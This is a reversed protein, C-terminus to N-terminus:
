IDKNKEGYEKILKVQAPNIYEPDYHKIIMDLDLLSIYDMIDLHKKRYEKLKQTFESILEKKQSELNINKWEVIRKLVDQPLWAIDLPHESM